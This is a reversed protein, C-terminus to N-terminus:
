ADKDLLGENIQYFLAFVGPKYTKKREEAHNEINKDSSKGSLLIHAKQESNKKKNADNKPAIYFENPDYLNESL